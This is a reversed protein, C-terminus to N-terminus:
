EKDKNIQRVYNDLAYEIGHKLAEVRSNFKEHEDGSWDVLSDAFFGEIKEGDRYVDTIPNGVSYVDVIWRNAFVVGYKNGYKESLRYGNEFTPSVVVLVRHKNELWDIVDDIYPATCVDENEKIYDISNKAWHWDIWEGPFYEIEDGKGEARLEYEEDCGLDEGKHRIATVYSADCPEDYGIEKLRMSLGYPLLKDEANKM